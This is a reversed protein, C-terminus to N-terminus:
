KEDESLEEEIIDGWDLKTKTEEEYGQKIIEQGQNTMLRQWTSPYTNVIGRKKLVGGTERTLGGLISLTIQLVHFLIYLFTRPERKLEETPKFNYYEKTAKLLSEYIISDSATKLVKAYASLRSVGVRSKEREPEDFDIILHNEKDDLRKIFRGLDDKLWAFLVRDTDKKLVEDDYLLQILTTIMLDFEGRASLLREKSSNLDDFNIYLYNNFSKSHEIIRDIVIPCDRELDVWSNYRGM